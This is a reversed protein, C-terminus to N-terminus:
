SHRRTVAFASITSGVFTLAATVAIVTNNTAVAFVVLLAAVVAVAVQVRAVWHFHALMKM